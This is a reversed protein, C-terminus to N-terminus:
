GELKATDGALALRQIPAFTAGFRREEGPERNSGWDDVLSIVRLDPLVLWSYAQRPAEPPNAFVLGSGDLPRWPGGISEAIMGYLGTPGVPGSPDFVPSQ